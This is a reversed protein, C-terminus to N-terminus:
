VESLWLGHSIKKDIATRHEILNEYKAVGSVVPGFAFKSPREYLKMYRM